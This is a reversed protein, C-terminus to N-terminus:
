SLHMNIGLIKQAKLIISKTNTNFFSKRHQIVIDARKQEKMQFYKKRSKVNSLKERKWSFTTPEVYIKLWGFSQL